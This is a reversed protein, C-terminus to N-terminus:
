RTQTREFGRAYRAMQSGDLTKSRLSIRAGKSNTAVFEMKAVKDM